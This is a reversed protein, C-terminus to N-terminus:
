TMMRPTGSSISNPSVLFFVVLSAQAATLDNRIPARAELLGFRLMEELYLANHRRPEVLNPAGELQEGVQLGYRQLLEDAPQM